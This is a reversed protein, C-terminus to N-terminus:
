HSSKEVVGTSYIDQLDSQTRWIQEVLSLVDDELESTPADEAAQWLERELTELAEVAAHISWSFAHQDDVSSRIYGNKDLQEASADIVDIRGHHTVTVIVDDYRFCITGDILGSRSGTDSFLEIVAEVDLYFDLMPLSNMDVQKHRATTECVSHVLSDLSSQDFTGHSTRVPSGSM